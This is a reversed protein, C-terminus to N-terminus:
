FFKIGLYPILWDGNEFKNDVLRTHLTPSIHKDNNFMLRDSFM